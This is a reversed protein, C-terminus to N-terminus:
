IVFGRIIWKAKSSPTFLTFRIHQKQQSNIKIRPRLEKLQKQQHQGIKDTDLYLDNLKPFLPFEEDNKLLLPLIEDDIRCGRVQFEILEKLGRGLVRVGDISIGCFLLHLTRLNSSSRPLQMFQNTNMYLQYMLLTTLDDMPGLQSLSCLQQVQEQHAYVNM